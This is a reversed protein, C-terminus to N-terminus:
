QMNREDKERAHTAHRTRHGVVVLVPGRGVVLVVVAPMRREETQGQGVVGAASM